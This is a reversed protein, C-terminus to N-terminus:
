NSNVHPCFNIVPIVGNVASGPLHKGGKLLIDVATYM